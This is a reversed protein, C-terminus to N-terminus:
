GATGLHRFFGRCCAISTTFGEFEHVSVYLHALIIRFMRVNNADEAAKAFDQRISERSSQRDAENNLVEDRFTVLGQVDNWLLALTQPLM